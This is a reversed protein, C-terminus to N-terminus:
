RPSEPSEPGSDLTPGALGDNMRVKVPMVGASADAEDLDALCACAGVGFADGLEVNVTFRARDRRVHLRILRGPAYRTVRQAVPTSPSMAFDDCGLIVDGPRIGCRAAPTEQGVGKVHFGFESVEGEIGLCGQGEYVVHTRPLRRLLDAIAASTLHAGPGIHLQSLGRLRLLHMLGVNGGQWRDDLLVMGAAASEFSRDSELQRYIGGLEQVRVLARSTRLAANENLIRDAPMSLDLRDGRQFEELSEAALEATRPESSLLEQELVYFLRLRLEVPAAPIAATCVPVSLAGRKLIEDAAARWVNDREDALYEILQPTPAAAMREAAPEPAIWVATAGIVVVAGFLWRWPIGGM